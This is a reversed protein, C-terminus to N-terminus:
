PDLKEHEARAKALERALALITLPSCGEVKNNVIVYTDHGDAVARRVLEIVERRMQPQPEVLRDFPALREREDVYRRGPPILLRSVVFDTTLIGDIMLQEGVTPMNSWYNIVHAAGHERLLELYRPTLLRRDRLEFAYRFERPARSLFREVGQEFREVGDDPLHKGPPPIEIVFPGAHEGFARAYPGLVEERMEEVDLFRPNERGALPGYRAHKPFVLTTLESWVKSVCPFGQPLQEAYHALEEETLPAYYSRDIGVTRFLPHRAYEVLSDRTFATKNPYRRHYVLGAWGPFTWSSTGFRLRDPLQSALARLAEESDLPQPEPRPAFLDLQRDDRM